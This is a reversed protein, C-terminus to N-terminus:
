KKEITNIEENVKKCEIASYYKNFLENNFFYDIYKTYESTINTEGSITFDVDNDNVYKILEIRTNNERNALYIETEINKDSINQTDNLLTFGKNIFFKVFRDKEKKFDCLIFM